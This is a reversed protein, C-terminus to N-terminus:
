RRLLAQAADRRADSRVIEPKDPNPPPALTPVTAAIKEGEIAFELRILGAFQVNRKFPGLFQASNENPPSRAPIGSRRAGLQWRELRLQIRLDSDNFLAGLLLVTFENVWPPPVVTAFVLERTVIWM